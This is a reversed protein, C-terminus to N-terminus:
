GVRRSIMGSGRSTRTWERLLAVGTRNPKPHLQRMSGRRKGALLAESELARILTTSDLQEHADCPYGTTKSKENGLEYAYTGDLALSRRKAAVPKATEEGTMVLFGVAEELM